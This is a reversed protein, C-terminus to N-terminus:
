VSQSHEGTLTYCGAKMLNKPIYCDMGLGLAKQILQSKNKVELIHRIDSLIVDVRKTSISYGFITLMSSIQANSYNNVFLFLVMRQKETFRDMDKVSNNFERLAVKNTHLLLKTLNPFYYPKLEVKVGLVNNTYSNIIPKKYVLFIKSAAAFPSISLHVTHKRQTMVEQDQQKIFQLQDRAERYDHSICLWPLNDLNIEKNAADHKVGVIKAFENTFKIVKLDLNKIAVYEKTAYFANFMALYNNLFEIDTLQMLLVYEKKPLYSLLTNM